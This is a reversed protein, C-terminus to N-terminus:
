RARLVDGALVAARYLPDRVEICVSRLAGVKVTVAVAGLGEVIVTDTIRAGPRTTQDSIRTRVKLRRSSSRDDGSSRM